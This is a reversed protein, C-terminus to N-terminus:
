VEIIEWLTLRLPSVLNVPPKIFLEEDVRLILRVQSTFM